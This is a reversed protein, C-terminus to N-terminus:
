VQKIYNEILKKARNQANLLLTKNNLILERMDDEASSMISTEDESTLPNSNIGDESMVYSDENYSDSDVTISLIKAEPVTITINTDNIEMKIDSMDIGIQVTGSYEIWVTRDKEGM